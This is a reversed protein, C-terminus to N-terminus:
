RERDSKNWKSDHVRPGDLLVFAYYESWSNLHKNPPHM